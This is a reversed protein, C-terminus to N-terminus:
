VRKKSTRKRKSSKKMKLIMQEVVKRIKKKGDDSFFVQDKEHDYGGDSRKRRKSRKSRKKRKKRKGDTTSNSCGNDCEGDNCNCLNGDGDFIFNPDYKDDGDVNGDSRKSRKSRKSSKSRKSRKSRKIRKSRKSSKSRKSKKSSKSSKSSKSRKNLPKAVTEFNFTIMQGGKEITRPNYIRRYSYGFTKRPSNQTTEQIYIKFHVQSSINNRKCISSGAKKAASSPNSSNFRGGIDKTKIKNNDSSVKVITFSRM